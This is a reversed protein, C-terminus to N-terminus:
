ADIGVRDATGKADGRAPPGRRLDSDPTRHPLSSATRIYSGTLSQVPIAIPSM